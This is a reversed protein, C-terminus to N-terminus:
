PAAKPGARTAPRSVVGAPGIPGWVLPPSRRSVDDRWLLAYSLMAFGLPAGVASYATMFIFGLLLALVGALGYPTHDGWFRWSGFAFFSLYFATGLFGTCVLLLWLQGNGGITVEGCQQCKASRGVAISKVSGQQHRTDGYGILPSSLAAHTAAVSLSSRVANSQGHNLRQTILNQLPTAAVAIAVIALMTVLGGLLALKGRAAFRAALYVIAAALGIWLGRDLSYIIPVVSLVLAAVAIKRQRPTGYCWWGVVLWPLLLAICNGWENTYVFPADPRGEAAGLVNQVQALGPHLMAQLFLNSQQLSQPVAFALPSTFRLHPFATGALGGVTAYIGVLGLLWALRRRPLESETLNGAYLLLVTVALYSVTRLLYSILRNSVPSAVTGPATRALALGGALAVLLFLLWLGFGPPVQIRRNRSTHWRRLQVAMPIALVVFAYDSLGLLWWLPFGILLAELPWAPHRVFWRPRPAAHAPSSESPLRAPAIEVHSM